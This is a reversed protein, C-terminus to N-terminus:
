GTRSRLGSYGTRSVADTNRRRAFAESTHLESYDGTMAAFMVVDTETITRTPSEFALGVHLDEYQLVGLKM